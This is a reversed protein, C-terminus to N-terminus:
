HQNNNNLNVCLTFFLCSAWFTLPCNVYNVLKFSIIWLQSLFLLDHIAGYTLWNFNASTFLHLWLHFLLSINKGHLSHHHQKCYKGHEVSNLNSHCVNCKDILVKMESDHAECINKQNTSTHKGMSQKM